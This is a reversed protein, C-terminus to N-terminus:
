ESLRALLLSIIWIIVSAVLASSLVFIDEEDIPHFLPQIVGSAFIVQGLNDLINSARDLQMKSLRPVHYLYIIGINDMIDITCRM